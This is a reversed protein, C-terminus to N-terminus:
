CLRWFLLTCLYLQLSCSGKQKVRDHEVLLEWSGGQWFECTVPHHLYCLHSHPHPSTGCRGARGGRKKM